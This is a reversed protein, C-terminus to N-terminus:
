IFEIEDIHAKFVKEDRSKGRRVNVFGNVIISVVEVLDCGHIGKKGVISNTGFYFQHQDITQYEMLSKRILDASKQFAKNIQLREMEWVVEINSEMRMMRDIDDQLDKLMQKTTTNLKQAM